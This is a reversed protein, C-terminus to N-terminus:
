LDSMRNLVIDSNLLLNIPPGLAVEDKLESDILCNLGFSGPYYNNSGKEPNRMVELVKFAKAILESCFFRRNHDIQAHHASERSENHDPMVESPQDFLLKTASLGYSKGVANRRFLDLDTLKEPTM